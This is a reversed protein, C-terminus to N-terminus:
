RLSDLHARAAAAIAPDADGLASEFWARASKKDGRDRLLKGLLVAARGRRMASPGARDIFAVLVREAAAKDGARVLAVAQFYRADAALPDSGSADADAAAGLEVAAERAKGQRLLNWGAQFHQETRSKS